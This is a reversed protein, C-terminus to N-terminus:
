TQFEHKPHNATIGNRCPGRQSFPDRFANYARTQAEPVVEQKKQLSYAWDVVKLGFSTNPATERSETATRGWQSISDRPADSARTEAESVM